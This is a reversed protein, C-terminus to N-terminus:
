NEFMMRLIIIHMSCFMYFANCVNKVTYYVMNYMYVKQIYRFRTNETLNADGSAKFQKYIRYATSPAIHLGNAIAKFEMEMGLRRWIVRWRIDNSYAAKRGPEILM